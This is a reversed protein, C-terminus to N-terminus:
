FRMKKKFVIISLTIVVIAWIAVIGTQSLSDAFKGAYAFRAAKVAHIFPLDNCLKALTGGMADVDMWIGGFMGSFTIIISCIGPAANNNLLTGFLLGFGIFMIISPISIIVSALINLFNLTVDSTLGMILGAIGTIVSQGASLAILPIIYGVIYDSSRMPSTFIRLLFAQQRDGSILLAAFLMVFTLGFVAIGPTLNQIQFLTMGAQPPISNNIISMVILMVLPFGLCFIWSLPDRMIEKLNRNAFILSKM